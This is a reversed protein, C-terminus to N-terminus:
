RGSAPPGAPGTKMSLFALWATLGAVLIVWGAVDYGFDSSKKKKASKSDAQPAQQVGAALQQQFAMQKQIEQHLEPGKLSVELSKRYSENTPELNIAEQFRGAAKQFCINALLPDPTQFGQTTHANGLWWLADDRKPDVNVAEELKVIADNILDFSDQGQVFQSLEVLTQGLKTLAEPDHPNKEHEAAAQERTKEFFLIREMEERPIEM